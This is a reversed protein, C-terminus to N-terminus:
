RETVLGVPGDAGLPEPTRKKTALRLLEAKSTVDPAVEASVHGENLVYIRNCVRLLEHFEQSFLLITAGSEASEVLVRYLEAKAGIDIGKTPEVLLLVKPQRMLQRGLLVKQQNGGSLHSIPSSMSPADITLRRAFDESLSREAKAPIWSKRWLDPLASLTLNEQVSMTPFIGERSRDDSIYGIGNGLAEQPGRRRLERGELLIEGDTIEEGTFIARALEDKGSGMIGAVGVIEGRNAYLDINSLGTKSATSLGRVELAMESVAQPQPRRSEEWGQGGAILTALEPHSLQDLEHTGIHRGDRLVTVRDGIEFVEELRHSIYVVTLSQDRGLSRVIEFLRAVDEEQLGSTPEDLLLVQPDRVLAKAIEVKQQQPISLQGVPLSLVSHPLGVLELASGAKERGHRDDIAVKRGSWIGLNLNDLVSMDPVLSFHQFVTAIGAHLADTPGAPKYREGRLFMEGSTPAGAGTLLKVLTSKGAGNEGVIVHVEGARIQVDVHDLARVGPYDMVLGRTELATSTQSLIKM